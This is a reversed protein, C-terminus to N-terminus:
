QNPDKKLNQSFLGEVHEETKRLKDKCFQILATAEEVADGLQDIDVEGGQLGEVIEQLRQKADKYSLDKPFKHAKKKAM